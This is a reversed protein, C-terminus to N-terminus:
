TTSTYRLFHSPTSKFKTKEKLKLQPPTAVKHTIYSLTTGTYPLAISQTFFLQLLPFNM